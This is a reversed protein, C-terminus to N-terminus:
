FRIEVSGSCCLFYIAMGSVIPVLLKRHVLVQGHTKHQALCEIDHDICIESTILFSDYLEAWM